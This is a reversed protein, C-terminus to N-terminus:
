IKDTFIKSFLKALQPDELLRSILDKPVNFEGPQTEVLMYRSQIAPPLEVRPWHEMRNPDTATSLCLLLTIRKGRDNDYNSNTYSNERDLIQIDIDKVKSKMREVLTCRHEAIIQHKIKHVINEEGILLYKEAKPILAEQFFM